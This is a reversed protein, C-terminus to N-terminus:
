MVALASMLERNQKISVSDINSWGGDEGVDRSQFGFCFWLLGLAMPAMATAFVTRSTARSEQKFIFSSFRLGM